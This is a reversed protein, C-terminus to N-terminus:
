PRIHDELDEIAELVGIDDALDEIMDELDELRSESGEFREGLDVSGTM